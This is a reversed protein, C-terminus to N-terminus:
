EPVQEERAAYDLDRDGTIEEWEYGLFAAFQRLPPEWEDRESRNEQWAAVVDPPTRIGAEQFRSLTQDFRARWRREEFDRREAHRRAGEKLRLAEVLAFLVYRASSELTHRDPHGGTGDHAQPDICARMIACIELSLFLVRPLSKHVEVPHFYHIVPHEIHAELLSQLDRAATKLSGTLGHFHGQVFHHAVFGAADAGEEAQHYFSLAVTRKRELAGYVTILYTVALSIVGFGTAAEAIALARMGATHPVLDGYGLTLLTEGSFYLADLWASAPAAHVIFSVPIRPYYILGFGLILVGLLVVLLM